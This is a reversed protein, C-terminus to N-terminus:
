PCWLATEGGWYKTELATGDHSFKLGLLEGFEAASVRYDHLALTGLSTAGDESWFQLTHPVSTGTTTALIGKSSVAIPAFVDALATCARTQIGCVLVGPPSSFTGVGSAGVLYRGDPFFGWGGVRVPTPITTVVEGTAADFLSITTAAPDNPIGLVATGDPSFAALDHGAIQVLTAGTLTSVVKDSSLYRDATPSFSPIGGISSDSPITTWDSTRVISISSKGTEASYRSEFLYAGDASVFTSPAPASSSTSRAIRTAPAALCTRTFPSDDFIWRDDLTFGLLQGRSDSYLDHWSARLLGSPLARREIDRGFCILDAKSSLSCNDSSVNFTGLPEGTDIDFVNATKTDKGAITVIWDNDVVIANWAGEIAPHVITWDTTRWTVISAESGSGAPVITSLKQGDPTFTVAKAAVGPLRVVQRDDAITRVEGDLSVQPYAIAVMTNDPSVAYTPNDQISVRGKTEGSALDHIVIQGSRTAASSLDNATRVRMALIRGDRSFQPQSADKFTAQATLDPLAWLTLGTNSPTVLYDGNPSVVALSSQTGTLLVAGIPSADASQTNKFWLEKGDSARVARAHGTVTGRVLIDAAESFSWPSSFPAGFSPGCPQTPVNASSLPAPRIWSPCVPDGAESGEGDHRNAAGDPQADIGGSTPAQDIAVDVRPADWAPSGADGPLSPPRSSVADLQLIRRPTAGLPTGRV